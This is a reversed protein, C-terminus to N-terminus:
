VRKSTEFSYLTYSEVSDGHGHLFSVIQSLVVYLRNLWVCQSLWIVRGVNRRFNFWLSLCGRDFSSRFGSPFMTLNGYLRFGAVWFMGNTLISGNGTSLEFLLTRMLHDLQSGFCYPRM